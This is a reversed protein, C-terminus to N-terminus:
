RYAGDLETIEIKSNGYDVWAIKKGGFQQFVRMVITEPKDNAPSKAFIFFVTSGFVFVFLLSILKIRKM